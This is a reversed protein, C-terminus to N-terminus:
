SRTCILVTKAMSVAVGATPPYRAADGLRTTSPSLTVTSARACAKSEWCQQSRKGIGRKVIASRSADHHPSRDLGNM